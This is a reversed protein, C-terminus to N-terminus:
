KQDKIVFTRFSFDVFKTDIPSQQHNVDTDFLKNLNNGALDELRNYIKLQYVDAKWPKEPTFQWISENKKLIIKGAMPKGESDKIQLCREALAADM